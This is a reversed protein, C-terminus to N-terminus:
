DFDNEIVTNKNTQTQQMRQKSSQPEQKKDEQLM